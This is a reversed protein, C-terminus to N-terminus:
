LAREAIVTMASLGRRGDSWSIRGDEDLIVETIVADGGDAIAADLEDRLELLTPRTNITVTETKSIRVSM